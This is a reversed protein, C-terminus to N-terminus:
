LGFDALPIDDVMRPNLPQPLDVLQLGSPPDKRGGFVGTKLMNEAYHM